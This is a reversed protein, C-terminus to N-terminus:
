GPQPHPRVRGWAVIGTDDALRLAGPYFKWSRAIREGRTMFVLPMTKYPSPKLLSISTSCVGVAPQRPEVLYNMRTEDSFVLVNGSHRILGRPYFQAQGASTYGRIPALLGHFLKHKVRQSKPSSVRQTNRCDEAHEQM